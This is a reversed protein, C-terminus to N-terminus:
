LSGYKKLLHAIRRAIRARQKKRETWSKRCM